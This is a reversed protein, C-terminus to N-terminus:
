VKGIQAALLIDFGNEEYAHVVPISLTDLCVSTKSGNHGLLM